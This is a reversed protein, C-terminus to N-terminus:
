ENFIPINHQKRCINCMAVAYITYVSRGCGYACPQPRKKWIDTVGARPNNTFQGEKIRDAYIGTAQPKKTM